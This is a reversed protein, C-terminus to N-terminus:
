ANVEQKTKPKYFFFLGAGALMLCVAIIEAQSPRVFGWDYTTNVRMLEILFREMGNLILYIGFLQLPRSFRKRLSWLVLFLLMCIAAEYMSTPFVGAPLVHSYDGKYNAIPIGDNNVNHKFNQAFMWDPLWGPAPAYKHPTIQKLDRDIFQNPYRAVTSDYQQPSSKALSADAQTVYASNYIGWDGDGSFQCGLRGLGYALMLAPAAADCLHAFSFKKKRAYIYLAITAVILGGYFTLGSASLLNGVPDQLFDQWTEFANFIKAGGFGGLAAIFIIDAVRQHPYIAVRQQKPQPLANKKKASYRSYVFVAALLVGGILSGKLSMLFAVPNHSAESANMFLGLVKFGVIFGLVGMWILENTTAPKGTEETIIEPQFLGQDKKRKLEKVIVWAGGLFGVAVFFGFTKVLSLGPLDLGFLYQFLYHFDPFM